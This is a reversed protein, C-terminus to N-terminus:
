LDKKLDNNVCNLRGKQKFTHEEEQEELQMLSTHASDSM